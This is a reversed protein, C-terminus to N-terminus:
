TQLRDLSGSLHEIRAALAAKESALRRIESQDHKHEAGLSKVEGQCAALKDSLETLKGTLSAKESALSGKEGQLRKVEQRARKLLSLLVARDKESGRGKDPENARTVPPRPGAAPRSSYPSSSPVAVAPHGQPLDEAGPEGAEQHSVPVVAVGAPESPSNRLWPWKVSACGAAALVALVPAAVLYRSLRRM